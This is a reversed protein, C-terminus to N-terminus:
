KKEGYLDLHTHTRMKKKVFLSRKIMQLITSIKIRFDNGEEDKLDFYLFPYRPRMGYLVPKMSVVENGEFVDAFKKWRKHKAM